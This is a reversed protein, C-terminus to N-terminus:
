GFTGAKSFFDIVNIALALIIVVISTFQAVRYKQRRRHKSKIIKWSLILSSYMCIISGILVFVNTVTPTNMQIDVKVDQWHDQSQIIIRPVNVGPVEVFLEYISMYGTILSFAICTINFSIICLYKKHTSM